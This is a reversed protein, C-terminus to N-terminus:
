KPAMVTLGPGVQPNQPALIYTGGPATILTGSDPDANDALVVQQSPRGTAPDLKDVPCANGLGHLDVVVMPSSDPALGTLWLAQPLHEFTAQYSWLEAGTTLSYATVGDGGKDGRTDAYLTTGAVLANPHPTNLNTGAQDDDAPITTTQKGAPDFALFEDGDKLDGGSLTSKSSSALIVVPNTSIVARLGYDPATPTQWLHRGTAADVAVYNGESGSGHRTCREQVIVVAGRGGTNQVTCEKATAAYKWKTDGTKADVGAVAGSDSAIVVVSGDVFTSGTAADVVKDVSNLNWLQKGTTADVGIVTDCSFNGDQSYFISGIDGPALTPSISCPVLGPGPPAVTFLQKGTALDYGTAGTSSIRVVDHDTQWVGVLNDKPGSTTWLQRLTATPMNDTGKDHKKTLAKFGFYGGTALGAVVILVFGGILWPAVNKSPPPQPPRYGYQPPPGQPPFFGQPPPGQPPFGQPPPGHPAYGQPGPYNQQPPYGPPPGPPGAPGAPGPPASTTTGQAPWNAPGENGPGM